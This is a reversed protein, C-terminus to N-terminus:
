RMAALDICTEADATVWMSMREISSVDPPYVTVRDPQGDYRVLTSALRPSDEPASPAAVAEGAPSGGDNTGQAGTENRRNSSM